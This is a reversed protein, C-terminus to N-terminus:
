KDMSKHLKTTQLGIKVYGSGKRRNVCSSNDEPIRKREYQCLDLVLLCYIEESSHTLTLSDGKVPETACVPM